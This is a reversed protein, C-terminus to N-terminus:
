RRRTGAIPWGRRPKKKGPDYFPLPAIRVDGFDGRPDVATRGVGDDGARVYGLGLTGGAIPSHCASTVTIEGPAAPLAIGPDPRWLVPPEPTEARFCVLRVRAELATEGAFRALGVEHARVPVVFENAFLLFGAEIRLTDAATFGAPRIREALASWVRDAEAKPCVIELGAEGTYGLRGILCSVGAIGAGGHGFYPLGALSAGTLGDFAELAGPGQVAFIATASGLDTVAAGGAAVLTDIDRRRGSMVEYRGGGRNWITLDSVLVGDAGAGLAYRIRGEALDDLRRGTLAGIATLAGPGSVRARQVFSFDFLACAERCARWEGEADGYDAVLGAPDFGTVVAAVSQFM